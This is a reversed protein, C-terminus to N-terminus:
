FQNCRWLGVNPPAPTFFGNNLKMTYLKHFSVSFALLFHRTASTVVRIVRSKFFKRCGPTKIETWRAM